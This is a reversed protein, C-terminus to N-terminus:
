GKKRADHWTSGAEDPDGDLEDMKKSLELKDLKYRVQGFAQVVDNFKDTLTSIAHVVQLTQEHQIKHREWMEGLTYLLRPNDIGAKRLEEEVISWKRLAM